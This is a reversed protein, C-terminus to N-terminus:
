YRVRPDVVAYTVDALLNVLVFLAVTVVVVGEVVPYDRFLIANVTLWGIGPIAFVTETLIAGSLLGGLQLGVVAVVPILAARLGHHLVTVRASLGKARATRVYDEGLAEVLAARTMQAIFALPYLSLAIAPLALHVVADGLAAPDGALAADVVPMGTVHPVIVGPTLAGSIPFWGLKAAGAIILLLGTWFVPMSVGVLVGSSLATDVLSGERAAAVAGSPIGLVLALLLAACSLQITYPLAQGIDTAVSDHTRFSIGYHGTAASMLFRAYQVYLPQDLGLQHRIQAIAAASAHQGLIAQAIGGPVIHLGLFALTAAGWLIPVALLARRLLFRGM